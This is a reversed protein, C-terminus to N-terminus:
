RGGAARYSQAALQWQEFHEYIRGLLYHVGPLKPQTQALPVVLARAEDWRNLQVLAQGRLLETLPAAPAHALDALAADPQELTLLVQARAQCLQPDQPHLALAETLMRQAREAEGRVCLDDALQVYWAVQRAAANSITKVQLPQARDAVDPHLYGRLRLDLAVPAGAFRATEQGDPGVLLVTPWARVDLTQALQEDADAVVQWAQKQPVVFQKATEAAEKGGVVILVQVDTQQAIAAEMATLSQRQPDLDPRWAVVVAPVAAPLAVKAGSRDLTELKVLRQTQARAPSPPPAPRRYQEAFKVPDARDYGLGAHCGPACYGGTDTKRFGVPATWANLQMTEKVLREQGATHTAHCVACNRPAGAGSAHLAHLNLEGNRFETRPLQEAESPQALLQADHCQFCFAQQGSTTTYLDREYPATLLSLFPSGHAEHCGSCQGDRIPGHAHMQPNALEAVAAITRGAPDQVPQAHCRLCAQVPLERMLGALNGGHASHCRLCTGEGLVASAHTVKAGAIRQQMQEHCGYCLQPPAATLSMSQASGHADHCRECQEKLAAHTYTAQALQQGFSEHCALCLDTGQADLLNAHRSAHPAHCATCEGQKVPTHTFSLATTVDEHCRGCMQSISAERTLSRTTGGHPNHCGLCEGRKVPEHVHAENQTSFEHCYTCLEAGQRLLEFRHEKEDTLRHCADCANVHVPGHLQDFAKVALHCEETVCSATQAAPMAPPKSDTRARAQRVPAPLELSDAPALRADGRMDAPKVPRPRLTAWAPSPAPPTAPVVEGPRQDPFRVVRQADHCAADGCTPAASFQYQEHCQACTLERHDQDLLQGTFAHDFPPPPPQDEQHHCHSCTQQQHCGLCPEHSQSWSMAPRLPVRPRRQTDTQEHCDACTDRRHCNACKIGYQKVHAEHRFTVLNGAAPRYRTQYQKVAPAEIPPHLRGVIDGPTPALKVATAADGPKAPEGAKGRAAHCITCGNDGTWAKHCNLCQRHYAGKLSPKRLDDPGATLPHCSKCAPITHAQQQQRDPAFPEVAAGPEPPQHHCTVCGDTMEAMQAHAAHSFPVAEYENMLERLIVVEPGYEGTTSTTSAWGRPAALVLTLSMVCFASVGRACLANM